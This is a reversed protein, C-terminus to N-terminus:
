KKVPAITAPEDQLEISHEKLARYLAFHLDSKVRGSGEVDAVFCVLEFKLAAEMIGVFLVMPAPFKMVGDNARACGILVERITEPDSSPSLSLPVKIRGVRDNRVWNKVVGSVLNSNPVIMMARDFTEIETSRVNIRRVYGQEDGVVVWDGVRIAREWLLILGSVFNSVISQLGFGIGVSLAGAVIAIREFSLGIHALAFAAALLFGLYGVSTRISNRLGVDLQTRPLFRSELWQQIVKTLGITLGFMVLSLVINSISITVDGVKFGFFGAKIAGFMDDSEIGWPALVLLAAFAFLALTALGTAVVSIQDLSERRLGLSGSLARGVPAHPTLAYELGDNVVIRLIFLMTGVFSVWVLQDILFSAFAIYGVVTAGVIAVIAIWALMRLVAYWDRRPTVVPGLCAEEDGSQQILGYLGSIMVGAVVLASAGRVLVSIPVSASILDDAAEIIRTIAVVSAVAMAVWAVRSSVRDGIDVLRRSSDAPSLLGRVIGLTMALLGISSAISNLFPDIRANSLEFFGIAEVVAQAVAMPVAATVLTIWLAGLAMRLPTVAEGAPGRYLVRRAIRSAAFYLGALGALTALFGALRWGHLRANLISYWDGSVIRAARWERPLENVASVWLGPSLISFSRAFLAGTFSARRRSVIRSTADDVDVALVRARKIAGDLENFLKQQEDREATVEPAEAPTSAPPKVGLQELRTKASNLRPTLEEIISQSALGLPDLRARLDRLTADTLNDRRLTQDIQDFDARATDLRQAPAVSGPDPTQARSVSFGTLLLVFAFAMIKLSINEPARNPM